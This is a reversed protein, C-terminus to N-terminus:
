KGWLLKLTSDESQNSKEARQRLGLYSFSELLSWTTDETNGESGYM